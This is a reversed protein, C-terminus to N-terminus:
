KQEKKRETDKQKAEQFGQRADHAFTKVDKSVEKAAKKANKEMEYAAKGAAEGPTQHHDDRSRDNRSCGALVLSIAIVTGIAPITM